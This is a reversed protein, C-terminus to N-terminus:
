EGTGSSQGRKRSDALAEELAALDESIAEAGELWQRHELSLQEHVAKVFRRLAEHSGAAVAERVDDLRSEIRELAESTRAYREANRRDQNTAEKSSAFSSIASGVVAFTAISAVEPWWAGLVGAPFV